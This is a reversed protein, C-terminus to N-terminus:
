KMLEHLIHLVRYASSEVDANAKNLAEMEDVYVKYKPDVPDNEAENIADLIKYFYEEDDGREELIDCVADAVAIAWKDDNM